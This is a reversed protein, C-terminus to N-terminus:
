IAKSLMYEAEIITDPCTRIFFEAWIKESGCRVFYKFWFGSKAKAIRVFRMNILERKIQRITIQRWNLWPSNLICLLFVSRTSYVRYHELPRCDPPVEFNM